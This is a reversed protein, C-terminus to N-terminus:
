EKIKWSQKYHSKEVAVVKVSLDDKGFVRNKTEIAHDRDTFIEADTFYPSWVMVILPMVPKGSMSMGGTGPAASLGCYWMWAYKVDKVPVDGEISIKSLDEGETFPDVPMHSEIVFAHPKIINM